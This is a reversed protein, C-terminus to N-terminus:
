LLGNYDAITLPEDALSGDARPVALPQGNAEFSVTGVETQSTLTCVIQAFGLVDDSRVLQDPPDAISVTARHDALRLGTVSMTSLASTLGAAAEDATPGALLATLSQHPGLLAPVRRPVRVLRGDRVLYLRLVATGAQDPATSGPANLVGPTEIARPEDDLPVGCGALALVAAVLVAVLRTM